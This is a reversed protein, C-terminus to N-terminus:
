KKRATKKVAVSAAGEEERDKLETEELDDLDIGLVEKCARYLGRHVGATIEEYVREEALIGLRRAMRFVLVQFLSNM